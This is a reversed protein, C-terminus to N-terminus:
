VVAEAESAALDLFTAAAGATPSGDLKKPDAGGTTTTDAGAGAGAGAGDLMKPESNEVGFTGLLSIVFAARLICCSSTTRAHDVQFSTEASPVRSLTM